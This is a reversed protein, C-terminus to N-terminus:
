EEVAVVLTQEVQQLVQDLVIVQEVVVQEAQEKVVQHHVKQTLEVVEQLFDQELFLVQHEM